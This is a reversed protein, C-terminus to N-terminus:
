RKKNLAKAKKEIAPGLTSKFTNIMQQINQELAPVLVPTAQKNKTGFEVALGRRWYTEPAKWFWGVKGFIVADSGLKQKERKNPKTIKIAVSSKLKGSLVPTDGEIQKKLPLLAKRIAPRIAQLAYKPDGFTKALERLNREAQKLGEVKFNIEVPM